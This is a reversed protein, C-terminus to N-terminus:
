TPAPENDDHHHHRQFTDWRRQFEEVQKLPHERVNLPLPIRRIPLPHSHVFNGISKDENFRKLATRNCHPSTIYRALDPSMFYLAGGMYTPGVHLEPVSPKIQSNGGYVRMNNPFRPLHHINDELFRNPFLLTDTDMKGLYDFYHHTLVITSAYHFWTQSKGEKMNEQINLCLVDREESQDHNHQLHCPVSIPYSANSDVLEKPGKANGGVVFIYAMQCEDSLEIGTSDTTTTTTDNILEQLSCIRNPTTASTEYYKVWTQRIVARRKAEEASDTTFLGMLVRPLVTSGVRGVTAAAPSNQVLQVEHPDDYDTVSDKYTDWRTLFDHAAL